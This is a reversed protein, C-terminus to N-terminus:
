APTTAFDSLALFPIVDLFMVVFQSFVESDSNAQERLEGPCPCLSRVGPSRRVIAQSRTNDEKSKHSLRIKCSVVQNNM